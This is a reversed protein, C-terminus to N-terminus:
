KWELRQEDLGADLGAHGDRDVVGRLDAGVADDVADGGELFEAAGADDDVEAGGGGEVHTEALPSYRPPTMVGPMPMEASASKARM